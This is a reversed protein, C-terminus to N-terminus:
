KAKTEDRWIRCQDIKKQPDFGQAKGMNSLSECPFQNCEGCHSLQKGECCSKVGCEGGWFPIKM